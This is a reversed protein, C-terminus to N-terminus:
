SIYTYIIPFRYYIFMNTTEITLSLLVEESLCIPYMYRLKPVGVRVWKSKKIKCSQSKTSQKKKVM